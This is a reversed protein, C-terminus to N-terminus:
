NSLSKLKTSQWRCFLYIVAAIAVLDITFLPAISSSPTPEGASISMGGKGGNLGIYLNRIGSETGFGVYTWFVGHYIYSFALSKVTPIQLLINV